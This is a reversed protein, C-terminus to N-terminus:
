NCYLIIKEHKALLQLGGGVKFITDVGMISVNSLYTSRHLLIINHHSHIIIIYLGNSEPLWSILSVM